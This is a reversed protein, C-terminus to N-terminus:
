FFHEYFIRHNTVSIAEHIIMIMEKDFRILGVQRLAEMIEVTSIGIPKTIFMLDDTRKKLAPEFRNQHIGLYKSLL